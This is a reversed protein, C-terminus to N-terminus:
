RYIAQTSCQVNAKHKYVHLSHLDIWISYVLFAKIVRSELLVANHLSLLKDIALFMSAQKSAQKSEFTEQASLITKSNEFLYDHAQKLQEQRQILEQQQSNGLSILQQLSGRSEELAQSQFVTVTQLVELAANQSELLQKQKDLSTETINM